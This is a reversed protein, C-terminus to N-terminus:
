PPLLERRAWGGGGNTETNKIEDEKAKANKEKKKVVNPLRNGRKIREIKRELTKTLLCSLLKREKGPSEQNQRGKLLQDREKEGKGSCVV